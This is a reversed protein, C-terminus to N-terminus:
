LSLLRSPWAAGSSHLCTLLSLKLQFFPWCLNCTLLDALEAVLQAAQLAGAAAQLVLNGGLAALVLPQLAVICIAVPLHLGQLDPWLGCLLQHAGTIVCCHQPALLAAAAPLHLIQLDPQLGKLLDAKTTGCCLKIVNHPLDHSGM